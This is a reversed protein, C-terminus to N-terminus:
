ELYERLYVYGFICKTRASRNHSQYTVLGFDHEREHALRREGERVLSSLQACLLTYLALYQLSMSDGSHCCFLVRYEGCQFTRGNGGQIKESPESQDIRIMQLYM